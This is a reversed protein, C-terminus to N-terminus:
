VKLDLAGKGQCKAALELYSRKGELNHKRLAWYVDIAKCSLDLIGRLGFRVLTLFGALALFPRSSEAIQNLSQPTAILKLLM